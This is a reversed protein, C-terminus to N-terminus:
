LKIGCSRVRQGGTGKTEARQEEWSGGSVVGRLLRKGGMSRGFERWGDIVYTSLAKKKGKKYCGNESRWLYILLNQLERTVPNSARNFCAVLIGRVYGGQKPRESVTVQVLIKENERISVLCHGKFEKYGGGGGEVESNKASAGNLDRKGL